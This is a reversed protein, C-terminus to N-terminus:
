VYVRVEKCMCKCVCRRACACAGGACAFVHTRYNIDTVTSTEAHIQECMCRTEYSKQKENNLWVISVITNKKTHAYTNLGLCCLLGARQQHRKLPTVFGSAINRDGLMVKLEFNFDIVERLLYHKHSHTYLYKHKTANTYTCTQTIFHPMVFGSAINRDGLM